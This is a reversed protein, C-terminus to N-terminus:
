ELTGVPGVPSVRRRRAAVRVAILGGVLVVLAGGGMATFAWSLGIADGCAGVLPFVVMMALSFVMNAISLITARRESPILANISDSFLPSLVSGLAAALPFTVIVLSRAIQSGRGLLGAVTVVCAVAGGLLIFSRRKGLRAEVVHAFPTVTAALLSGVMGVAGIAPLPISMEGMYGQGYYQLSHTLLDVAAWLLMLGFLSRERVTAVLESLDRKLSVKQRARRSVEPSQRERMPFLVLLAAVAAAISLIYPLKLARQAAIGGVVVALSSAVLALSQILGAFRTYNRERGDLKMDDYILADFAGSHCTNSLAGIAFAIAFGFKSRATLMLVSSAISLVRGAILSAKRGFRDAIWGTPIEGTFAAIHYVTELLGIAAFSLGLERLYIVWLAESFSLSMLFTYICGLALTPQRRLSFRPTGNTTSM